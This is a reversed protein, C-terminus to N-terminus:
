RLEKTLNNYIRELFRMDQTIIEARGTMGNTPSLKQGYNTTLGDPFNVKALFVSDRVPFDSLYAINGTVSGFERDPYGSFRVLVQQGERIKGFSRQSILMEGFFATNPPKVYFLEQGSSVTQNEQLIGAYILKGSVPSIILYNKKWLDIASQLTNLSQRFIARQEAIQKNLAILENEKSTQTAYNNIIASETQQLPLRQGAVKSEIRALEMPAVLDKDALKKQAAYEEQAIRLNIEQIKKQERLSELLLKSYQLEKSLMKRKQLYFGGPLYDIFERYDQEFNQFNTQLEGLNTFMSIDISKIRESYENKLWAKMSDVSDSLDLINPHSATSELWVLINQEEVHSNNNFPLHVIKGSINSQLIKPENIARLRLPAEIVEPYQIVSASVLVLMLIVLFASIGSRVLWHPPRGIIEQVETSRVELDEKEVPKQNLLAPKLGKKPKGNNIPSELM